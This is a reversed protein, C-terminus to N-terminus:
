LQLMTTMIKITMSTLQEGKVIRLNYSPKIGNKKTLSEVRDIVEKNIPIPIVKRHSIINGRLLNMVEFGGQLTDLEQVGITRPTTTNTPNTKNIVKGYSGFIM